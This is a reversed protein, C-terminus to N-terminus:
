RSKGVAPGGNVNIRGKGQVSPSLTQRLKRQKCLKKVKGRRELDGHKGERNDKGEKGTKM